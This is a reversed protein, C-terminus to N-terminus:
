KLEYQYISRTNYCLSDKIDKAQKLLAHYQEIKIDIVQIDAEMRSITQQIEAKQKTLYEIWKEAIIRKTDTIFGDQIADYSWFMTISNNVPNVTQCYGDSSRTGFRRYAGSLWVNIEIRYGHKIHLSTDFTTNHKNDAEFVVKNAALAKELKCNLVKGDFKKITRIAEDFLPLVAKNVDITLQMQVQQYTKNEAM